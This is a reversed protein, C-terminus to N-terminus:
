EEFFDGGRNKGVIKLFFYKIKLFFTKFLFLGALLFGLLLQLLYSGTGPDLYAYAKKTSFIIECLFLVVLFFMIKNKKNLM